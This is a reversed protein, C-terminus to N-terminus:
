GEKEDPSKKRNRYQYSRMLEVHETVNGPKSRVSTKHRSGTNNFINHNGLSEAASHDTRNLDYDKFRQLIKRGDLSGHTQLNRKGQELIYKIESVKLFHYDEFVIQATTDLQSSTMGQPVNFWAAFDTLATLVFDITFNYGKYCKITSLHPADEAIALEMSEFKFQRDFLKETWNITLVQLAKEPHFRRKEVAEICFPIDAEQVSALILELTDKEIVGNLLM